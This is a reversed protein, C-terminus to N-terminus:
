KPLLLTPSELFSSSLLCCRERVAAECPAKEEERRWKLLAKYRQRVGSGPLSSTLTAHVM